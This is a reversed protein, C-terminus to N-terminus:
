CHTEWSRRLAGLVDRRSLGLGDQLLVKDTVELCAYVDKTRILNDLEQVRLRGDEVIPIPLAEFESPEFTLVGGGYGRGTVESSALTLSNVFSSAVRTASVGHKFRIRHLTDTAHAGAANLVIRPYAHVQRLGFADPVWQSPVVWWRKRIRCKYGKHLSM